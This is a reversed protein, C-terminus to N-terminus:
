AGQKHSIMNKKLKLHFTVLMYQLYIFFEEVENERGAIFSDDYDYGGFADPIGCTVFDDFEERELACDFSANIVGGNLDASDNNDEADDEHIVVRSTNDYKSEDNDFSAAPSLFLPDEYAIAVDYENVENITSLDYNAACRDCICISCELDHCRLHENRSCIFNAKRDPVPIM